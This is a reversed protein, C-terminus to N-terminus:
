EKGEDENLIEYAIISAMWRTVEIKLSQIDDFDGDRAMRMLINEDCDNAIEAIKFWIEDEYQDHLRVIENNYNLGNFGSNAGKKVIDELQQMTYQNLMWERFTAPYQEINLKAFLEKKLSFLADEIYNEIGMHSGPNQQWNVIEDDMQLAKRILTAFCDSTPKLNSM